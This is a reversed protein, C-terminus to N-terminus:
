ANTHTPARAHHAPKATPFLLQVNADLVAECWRALGVRSRAYHGTLEVHKGVTQSIDALLHPRPHPM